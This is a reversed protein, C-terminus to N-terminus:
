VIWNIGKSARSGISSPILLHILTGLILHPLDVGKLLHWNSKFLNFLLLQLTM